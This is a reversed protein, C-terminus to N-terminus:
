EKYFAYITINQKKLKEKLRQVKRRSWETTNRTGYDHLLQSLQREGIWQVLLDRVQQWIDLLTNDDYNDESITDIIDIVDDDGNCYMMDELSIYEPENKRQRLYTLIDNNYTRILLSKHVFYGKNYLKIMSLRCIQKADEYEILSWRTHQLNALKCILPEYIKLMLELPPQEFCIAKTNYTNKDYKNVAIIIKDIIASAVITNYQKRQSICYEIKIGVFNHNTYLPLVIYSYLMSINTLHETLVNRIDENVNIRLTIKHLENM